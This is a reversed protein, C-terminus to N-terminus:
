RHARIEVINKYNLNADGDLLAKDLYEKRRTRTNKDIHENYWENPESTTTVIEELPSGKNIGVPIVM